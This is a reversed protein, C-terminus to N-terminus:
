HRRTNWFILGLLLALAPLLINVLLQFAGLANRDLNLKITLDYNSGRGSLEERDTIWSIATRLFDRQEQKIKKPNLLDINGIVVMRATEKSLKIDGVNGREIATALVLPGPNDEAVDFEPNLQTYKTEGYYDATTILMPSINIMRASLEPNDNDGTMSISEGELTTSQNWFDQMWRLGPAFLANIEYYAKKRDKLLVRDDNPRLGQARLFQYMNKNDTTHPDIAIFIGSSPRNWYDTLVKQEAETLDYPAGVLMFGAADEPVAELGSLAIPVLELNLSICARNISFFVSEEDKASDASFNSKDAAVYMKRPNGEVASILGTTLKDEMQLAVAKMGTGDPSKEYLVFDKGPLIRVHAAGEEKNGAQTISRTTDTRADIVVQNQKFEIGYILAIERAANPQRLPDIYEVQIKGDSYREYEELLARMRTYNQTTRQFAFIIKVPTERASMMNSKLFNITHPSADYRQDETLDRRSYQHYSVYNVAIVIIALLVLNLWYLVIGKHKRPTPPLATYSQESM